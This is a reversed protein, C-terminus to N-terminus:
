SSTITVVVRPEDSYERRIHMEYIYLDDQYAIGNLADLIIKMVNDLDPKRTAYIEGALAAARQKKNFKSLPPAYAIVSVSIPMDAFSYNECQEQYITRVLEEYKMTKEPTYTGWRTVRPRQKGFPAGPITFTKTVFNEVRKKTM